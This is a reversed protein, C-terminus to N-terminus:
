DMPTYGVEPRIFYEYLRQDEASRSREILLVTSKQSKSFKDNISKLTDSRHRKQIDASRRETGLIRNLEDQRTRLGNRNDSAIKRLIDKEVNTLMDEFAPMYKGANSPEPHLTREGGSTHGNQGIVQDPGIWDFWRSPSFGHRKAQYVLFAVPILLFSLSWWYKWKTGKQSFVSEAGAVLKNSDLIFSKYIEKEKHDYIMIKQGLYFMSHNGLQWTPLFHARISDSLSGLDYRKNQGFNWIEFRPGGRNVVVGYPTELYVGEHIDTNTHSFNLGGVKEWIMKEPSLRYVDNTRSFSSTELVENVYDQEACWLARQVPDYYTFRNNSPIVENLKVIEWEAREGVYARLQGNTQWFGYGGFSYLQQDFFCYHGGNMGAYKTRDSRTAKIGDGDMVMTFVAGYQDPLFYVTSGKKIVNGPNRAVSDWALPMRVYARTYDSIDGLFLLALTTDVQVQAFLGICSFLITTLLSISRRM